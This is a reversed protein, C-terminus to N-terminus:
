IDSSKKFKQHLKTPIQFLTPIESDVRCSKVFWVAGNRFRYFVRVNEAVRCGVGAEKTRREESQKMKLRSTTQNRRRRLNCKAVNKPL